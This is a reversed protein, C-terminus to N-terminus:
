SRSKYYLIAQRLITVESKDERVIRIAQDDYWTIKGELLESNLLRFQLTTKGTRYKILEVEHPPIREERNSGRGESENVIDM